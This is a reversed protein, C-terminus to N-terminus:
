CPEGFHGSGNSSREAHILELACGAGCELARRGKCSKEKPSFHSFFFFFGQFPEGSSVAPLAASPHFGQLSGSAGRGPVPTDFIQEGTHRSSGQGIHFTDVTQKASSSSRRCKWWSNRKQPERLVTRPFRSPWSIRPVAIVQESVLSDVHALVAVLQDVM